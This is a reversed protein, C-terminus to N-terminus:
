SICILLLCKELDQYKIIRRCEMVNMEKKKNKSSNSLFNLTETFLSHFLLVNECSTVAAM